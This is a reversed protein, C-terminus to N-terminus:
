GHYWLTIGNEVTIRGRHKIERLKTIVAMEVVGRLFSDDHSELGIDSLMELLSPLRAAKSTQTENLLLSANFTNTTM